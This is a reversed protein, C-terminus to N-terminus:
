FDLKAQEIQDIYNSWFYVSILVFLFACLIKLLIKIWRNKIMSEICAMALYPTAIALILGEKIFFFTLVLFFLCGFVKFVPYTFLVYKKM